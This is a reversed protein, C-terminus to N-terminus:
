KLFKNIFELNKDIQINSYYSISRPCTEGTRAPLIGGGLAVGAIKGEAYLPGGSDGNGSTSPNNVKECGDADSAIIILGSGLSAYIRNAGIRKIGAGSGMLINNQSYNKDDGFGVIIVEQDYLTPESAIESPIPAIDTPM